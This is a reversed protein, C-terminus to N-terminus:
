LLGKVMYHCAGRSYKEAFNAFYQSVAGCTLPASGKHVILASRAVIM